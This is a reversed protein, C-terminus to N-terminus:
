VPLREGPRRLRLWRYGHARLDIRAEDGVLDISRRRDLLDVLEEAGADEGDLPLRLRHRRGSLDHLTFVTAGDWSYRLGLVDDTGLDVLDWSGWGFQPTTRRRAILRKMWELFSGPDGLQDAVNVGDPGWEGDPFPRVPEVGPASFGGGPGSCWQMPSRVSLRGPIEPSEGMGIEEGYFLVPTGPLSLVLSYVLEMRARDGGLMTPVRRRLGRGYVQHEPDPGFAAFVEDRQEDTLQDLSLEDHNRAFNAWQAEIPLAPLRRLAQILPEATGRALALYMAQNVSFNLVLQLQEDREDGVYAKQEEPPLNLEGLLVADGRRRGLFHRLDALFDHPDLNVSPDLGELGLLFPVADVRFGSVEQQLWYGVIRAIEDRVAPNGINVDPQHRYFYHLFFQGAEEDWEWHSDEEGPFVIETRWDAPPEDCWVYFDRFPSTRDKRAAQFWPHDVSTHNVVLDLVVRIGRDGATRMMETFDGATGVSPHIGYYDTIDYGDDRLPSPQFPMLWLCDVGLDNLHDLRSLLGMLDGEGDDDSDSYTKVDACYVIANKWWLDSTHEIV